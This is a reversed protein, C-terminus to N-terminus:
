DPMVNRWGRQRARPNRFDSLAPDPKENGLTREVVRVRSRCILSKVKQGLITAVRGTVGTGHLQTPEFDIEVVNKVGEPAM